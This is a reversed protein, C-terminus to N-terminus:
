LLFHCGVGTNKGPSDWPCHLRTPQQRHPRPLTPCSQLSKAAAAAAPHLDLLLWKLQVHFLLSTLFQSLLIVLSYITLETWNLWETTDLEKHGWPSCCVLSGQGDGVGLALDFEHGDFQHHWGVMEDETTGKDEQMWDKGADLDKGILWKEADPPWLVPTQAITRGIFIWSQNEKPHVPQIEKSDLSSKLTKELVVAWFCWNKLAWSGKYYLEWM